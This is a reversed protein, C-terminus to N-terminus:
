LFPWKRSLMFSKALAPSIASCNLAPRKWPVLHSQWCGLCTARLQTFLYGSAGKQGRRAGASGYVHAGVGNLYIIYTKYARNILLFHLPPSPFLGYFFKCYTVPFLNNLVRVVDEFRYPLFFLITSFASHPSEVSCHPSLFWMISSLYICLRIMLSVALQFWM